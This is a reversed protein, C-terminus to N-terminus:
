HALYNKIPYKLQLLFLLKDEEEEVLHDEEAAALRGVAVATILTVRDQITLDLFIVTIM